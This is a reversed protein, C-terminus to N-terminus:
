EARLSQMPDVKSARRAPALVALAAVTLILLTALLYGTVGTVGPLNVGPLNLIGHIVRNLLIAVATGAGLGILVELLPQKGLAVLIARRQAGLAVRIGIERTRLNVARMLLGYLGLATLLLALLAFTGSLSVLMRERILDWDALGTFPSIIIEAGPPIVEKAAQHVAAVALDTSSARVFLNNGSGQQQDPSGMLYVAHAIPKRLSQYRVDEAIAVVLCAVNKPDLDTGDAKGEVAYHIEQGISNEGPFFYSAMTKSVVCEQIAKPAAFVPTGSLIRTGAAAFFGPTAATYFINHDSHVHAKSDLSFMGTVGFGGTLPRVSTYGAATVGPKSQVTALLRGYLNHTQVEDLKLDDLGIFAYAANRIVFGSNQTLLSTLTGGLLFATSVLCLSVMIQLAIAWGGLHRAAVSRDVAKLDLAPATKAARLAPLLGAGLVIVFTSVLNFTLIIANPHLDAVIHEDSPTIMGFLVRAGYWGLSVGLLAGPIALLFTELLVQRVLRLRGAGLAARLAYERQRGSVRALMVLATNVCCLVILFGVLLELVLLPSKYRDKLHDIGSHGDEPHLRYNKFFGNLMLGGPDAAKRLSPELAHAEAIANSLKIGPRLRGMAQLMMSGPQTLVDKTFVFKAFSLPLYVAQHQNAIPGDFGRPLIGTIIVPHDAIVLTRGLAHPDGHFESQWYEYSLVAPIGQEGQNKDDQETFTRGLAPELGLVNFANGSFMQVFQKTTHTGNRVPIFENTMAFIDVSTKQRQRLQTYLPGSLGTGNLGDRMEYVVFQEPHPVPLGKLVINWTLTFIATNAGIGLTLTVVAVITIALSKALQRVAFKADAWLSELKPWQWVERSREEILTLNGFARRAAHEAEARSMGEIRILHETKQEIHERLEAALDDYRRHQFMRQLWGM